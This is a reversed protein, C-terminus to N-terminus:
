LEPRHSEFETDPISLCIHWSLKKTIQRQLSIGVVILDAIESSGSLSELHTWGVSPALTMYRNLRQAITYNVGTVETISSDKLELSIGPDHFVSITHTTNPRLPHTYSVAALAGVGDIHDVGNTKTAALGTEEWGVSVTGNLSSTIQGNVGLAISYGTSDRLTPDNLYSIGYSM